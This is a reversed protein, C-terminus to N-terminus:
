CILALALFFLRDVVDKGGLVGEEASKGREELNELNLLEVNVNMKLLKEWFKMYICYYVHDAKNRGLFSLSSFFFLTAELCFFVEM